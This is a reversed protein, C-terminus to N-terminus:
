DTVTGNEIYRIQVAQNTDAANPIGTLLITYAKSQAVNITRNKNVNKENDISVSLDGPDVAIFDSVYMFEVDDDALNSGASNITVRATAEEPIANIYRVYSKGSSATLSDYNDVVVVNKYNDNAGVVFLSYYKNQDFDYGLSDLRASTQANYTGIIRNGPYVNLYRGSYSTYPLEGGPILNGSLTIAVAPLDPVLNFAMLGAVPQQIVDSENKKCATFLATIALLGAMFLTRNSSFFFKRTM